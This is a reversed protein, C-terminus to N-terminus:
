EGVFLTAKHGHVGRIMRAYWAGSSPAQLFTTEGFALRKDWVTTGAATDDFDSYTQAASSSSEPITVGIKRYVRDGNGDVPRLLLLQANTLNARIIAGGRGGAPTSVADSVAIDATSSDDTNIDITLSVDDHDDADVERGDRAFLEIEMANHPTGPVLAIRWEYPVRYSQSGFFGGSHVTHGVPQIQDFLEDRPYNDSHALDVSSGDRFTVTDFTAILEGATYPDGPAQAFQRLVISGDEGDRGESHSVARAESTSLVLDSNEGSAPTLATWHFPDITFSKAM